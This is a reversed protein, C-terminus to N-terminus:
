SESMRLHLYYPHISDGINIGVVLGAAGLDSCTLATVDPAVLTEKNPPQSWRTLKSNSVAYEILMAPPGDVNFLLRDSASCIISTAITADGLLRARTVNANTFTSTRGDQEVLVEAFTGGASFLYTSVIAMLTSAIVLEVLTVGSERTRNRQEVFM